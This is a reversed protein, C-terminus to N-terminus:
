SVAACAADTKEMKKVARKSAKDKIAAVDRKITDADAILRKTDSLVANVAGLRDSLSRITDDFRQERRRSDRLEYILLGTFLVAWLGNAVVVSVIDNINM